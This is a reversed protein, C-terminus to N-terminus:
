SFLWTLETYNTSKQLGQRFSTIAKLTASVKRKELSSTNRTFWDRCINSPLQLFHTIIYSIFLTNKVLQRCASHFALAPIPVIDYYNINYSSCFIRHGASHTVFPVSAFHFALIKERQWFSSNRQTFVFIILYFKNLDSSHISWLRTPPLPSHLAIHFLLM